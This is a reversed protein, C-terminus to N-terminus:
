KGQSSNLRTSKRDSAEVHGAQLMAVSMIFSESSLSRLSAIRASNGPQVTLNAWYFWLASTRAAAALTAAAVQDHM